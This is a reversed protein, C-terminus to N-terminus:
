VGSVKARKSVPYEGNPDSTFWEAYGERLAEKEAVKM